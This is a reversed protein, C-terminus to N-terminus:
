PLNYLMIRLFELANNARQGWPGDVCTWVGRTTDTGLLCLHFLWGLMFCLLFIGGDGAVIALNSSHDKKVWTIASISHQGCEFELTWFFSFPIFAM